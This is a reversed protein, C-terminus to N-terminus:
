FKSWWSIAEKTLDEIKVKYTLLLTGEDPKLKAIANNYDTLSRLETGEADILRSQFDIVDKEAAATSM